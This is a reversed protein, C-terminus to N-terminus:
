AELYAKVRRYTASDIKGIGRLLELIGALTLVAHLHRGAEALRERGGQERDVLVVVDRVGLGAAEMSAIAQLLSGGSTVVDEIAVATQGPAFTGEIAQGTGHGKVEKRPYVLPRKLRLALAAAAPLAAYPVAALMDFALPAVVEAYAAVVREFLDPYSVIRRLDIYVPSSQGSALVFEGFQVCGAEFLAAVLDAQAVGGRRHLNIAARLGQAAARPDQASLVGRSVPVIM